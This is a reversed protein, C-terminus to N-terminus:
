SWGPITGAQSTGRIVIPNQPTGSAYISWAGTYLGDALTIVDGPQATGLAQALDTTNSVLRSRPTVPDRPVTRTTASLTATQNVPGDPDSIALEIDYTTGPRLDFISGSFQSSITYPLTTEPHVRFLPLAPLWNSTGSKWYRVSVTANFNDDGSVPLQVGLATLTPRDLVPTGPRLIDDAFAILPLLSLAVPRTFAM